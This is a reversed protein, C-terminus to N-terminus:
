HSLRKLKTVHAAMDPDLRVRYVANRCKLVWVASDPRSLRVNQTAQIPGECQYGQNRVQAAVDDAPTQSESSCPFETLIGIIAAVFLRPWVLTAGGLVAVLGRGTISM